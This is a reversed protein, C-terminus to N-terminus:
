FSLNELKKIAKQHSKIKRERMDEARRQADDKFRHWDNGHAYHTGGRRTYVIMGPAHEPPGDTEVEFIGKTLAYRTVWAKM